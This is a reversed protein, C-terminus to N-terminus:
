QSRGPPGLMDKGMKMRFRRPKAGCDGQAAETAACHGSRKATRRNSAAPREDRPAALAARRAIPLGHSHQSPM